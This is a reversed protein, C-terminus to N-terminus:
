HCLGNITICEALGCRSSTLFHHTTPIFKNYNLHSLTFTCKNDTHIYVQPSTNLWPKGGPNEASDPFFNNVGGVAVNLIFYFQSILFL